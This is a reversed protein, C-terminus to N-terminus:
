GGRQEVACVLMTEDAGLGGWLTVLEGDNAVTSGNGAVLVDGNAASSVRMTAFLLTLREGEPTNLASGGPDLALTGKM